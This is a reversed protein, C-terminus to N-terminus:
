HFLNTITSLNLGSSQAPATTTSATPQATQTTGLQQTLKTFLGGTAKTPDGRSVILVLIVLILFTTSLTKLKPIYGLSGIILISLTWYIFNNPGTFDNGLLSFLTGQTNRVAAILLIAGAILLTFAM